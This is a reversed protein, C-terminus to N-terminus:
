NKLALTAELGKHMLQRIQMESQLLRHDDDVLITDASYRLSNQWPIVEDRLGHIVLAGAVYDQEVYDPLFLAPAMLLVQCGPIKRQKAVVASVYGGMSNGVLYFMEDPFQDLVKHLMVVRQEPDRTARYDPAMVPIDYSAAVDKIWEYKRILPGSTKGHSFIVVM